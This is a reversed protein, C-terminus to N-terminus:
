FAMHEDVRLRKGDQSVVSPVRTIAFRRSLSGGQDFFVQSKWERGLKLPEGGVLVPKVPIKSEAIFRRAFATQAKSSADFFLLNKTMRDYDFPNVKTGVPFLVRGKEDTINRDLTYTPDLYFTRTTETPRIGAVPRPKEIGGVVKNKYDEQMSTLEGTKEMARFKDKFVEILDRELIKYTPGITGLDEGSAGAALLMLLVVLMPRIAMSPHQCM